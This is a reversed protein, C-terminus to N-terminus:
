ISSFTFQSRVSVPHGRKHICMARYYFTVRRTLLLQTDSFLSHLQLIQLRAYEAAMPVVLHLLRHIGTRIHSAPPLNKILRISSVAVPSTDTLSSQLTYHAYICYHNYVFSRLSSLPQNHLYLLLKKSYTNVFTAFRRTFVVISHILATHVSCASRQTAQPYNVTLPYSVLRNTTNLYM